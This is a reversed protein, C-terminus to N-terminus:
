KQDIKLPHLSSVVRALHDITLHTYKETAVLSSHGLLEQLARLDAGGQLLHTAYSHRLAHPNLPRLFNVKVGWKRVWDYAVRPSLAQEGWIYKHNKSLIQLAEIVIPPLVIWREKGGKGMVLIQKKEWNVNRWNLACAESVRLGGGYLLFILARQYALQPDASLQVKENLTQTLYIAEDVSIFNPIKRPVKPAAIKEALPSAIEGRKYLWNFFSKLTGAKRNRSALSLCAWKTQALIAKRHLESETIIIHKRLKEETSFVQELDIKYSKITHPSRSEVDQLEKLFTYIWNSINSEM